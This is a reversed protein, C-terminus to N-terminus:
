ATYDLLEDTNQLLMCGRDEPYFLHQALLLHFAALKSMKTATREESFDTNKKWVVCQFKDPVEV